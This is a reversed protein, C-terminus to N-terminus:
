GSSRQKGINYNEFQSFILIFISYSICINNDSKGHKIHVQILLNKLNETLNKEPIYKRFMKHVLTFISEVTLYTFVCSFINEVCCKETGQQRFM